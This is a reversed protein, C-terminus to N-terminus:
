IEEFPSEGSHLPSRLLVFQLTFWAQMRGIQFAVAMVAKWPSGLSRILSRALSGGGFFGSSKLLSVSLIRVTYVLRILSLAEGKYIYMYLVYIYVCM